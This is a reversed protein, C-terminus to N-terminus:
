YLGASSEYDLASLFAQLARVRPAALSRTSELQIQGPLTELAKRLTPVVDTFTPFRTDRGIKAVQRLIGIAGLQELIDADRVITGEVTAPQASPQHTRIAEVVASVKTPPFGTSALVEQAHDIAYAVNDWGALEAPDEPRHGIFVGLDHLWVAAHVVDDDYDLGAGIQRTLAYLRPQHGFKDVPRAEQAIYSELAERYSM